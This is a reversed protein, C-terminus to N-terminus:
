SSSVDDMLGVELQKKAAKLQKWLIKIEHYAEQPSMKGNTQLNSIYSVRQAFEQLNANFVLYEPKFQGYYCSRPYLFDSLNSLFDSQESM